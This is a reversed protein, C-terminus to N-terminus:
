TRKYQPRWHRYTILLDGKVGEIKGKTKSRRAKFAVTLLESQANDKGALARQGKKSKSLGGIQKPLGM